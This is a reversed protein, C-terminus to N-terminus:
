REPPCIPIWKNDDTLFGEWVNLEQKAKYSLHLMKEPEQMRLSIESNLEHRFNKMFPCMVAIDNLKGMLSQLSLLNSKNFFVHHIDDITEMKKDDPISWCLTETDLFKGLVKGYKTSEFASEFNPCNPALEINVE